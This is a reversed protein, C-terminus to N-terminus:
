YQKVKKSAPVHYYWYMAYILMLSTSISLCILGIYISNYYGGILLSASRLIVDAIGFLISYHQMRVVVTVASIPALIFSFMLSPALIQSYIGAEHWQMGFVFSFLIPAAILVSGFIPISFLFLRKYVKLIQEQVAKTNPHLESIRQFFVQYTAAGIVGAPLRLIRYSMFFFGAAANGFYFKILGAVILDQVVNLFSHPTNFTLFHIYRKFLEKMKNRSVHVKLRLWDKRFFLLYMTGISIQGLIAGLILGGQEYGFYFLAISFLSTGASQAVKGASLQTFMKVRSLWYNLTNMTGFFFVYLALFPIYYSIEEAHIFQLLAKGSLQFILFVIISFIFSIIFSLSVVNIAEEEKQPLMVAMEYRFTSAIATTAALNIFISYLGFDAPSFIRSLVPSLAISIIQAILTGGVVNAVNKSFETKPILKKIM